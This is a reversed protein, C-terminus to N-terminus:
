LVSLLNKMAKTMMEPYLEPKKVHFIFKGTDNHAVTWKTEGTAKCEINIPLFEYVADYESSLSVIDGLTNVAKGACHLFGATCWMPRHLNGHPTLLAENPPLDLYSLWRQDMVKGLAYEFYKQMPKSLFPLIESQKFRYYTGYTGSSEEIPKRTDHYDFCPMWYLPCPIQFITSFSYPDLQVNYELTSEPNSSGANLYIGACKETFLSPAIKYAAAVDRCSGVIHIYVKESSRELTKLVLSIGGNLPKQAAIKEIDADSKPKIPNGVGVAVSQGTIYNLQAVAVVAPDGCDWGWFDSKPPCDILIGQLDIDGKRSIAFQCALDWHDDPDAHHHFVDTQHLVQISM